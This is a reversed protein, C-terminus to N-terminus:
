GDVQAFVDDLPTRIRLEKDEMLEYVGKLESASMGERLEDFGMLYLQKVWPCARLARYFVQRAQRYDGDRCEFAVYWHWLVPSHAGAETEIANEFARRVAHVSSRGAVSRELENRVILLLSTITQQGLPRESYPDFTRLSSVIARVRDNVDSWPELHSLLSPFITNNPFTAISDLLIDRTKISAYNTSRRHHVLLLRARFQHLLEDSRTHQMSSPLKSRLAAFSALAADLPDSNSILYELLVCLEIHYVAYEHDSM